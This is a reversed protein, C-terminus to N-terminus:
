EDADGTVGEGEGLLVALPAISHGAAAYAVAHAERGAKRLAEVVLPRWRMVLDVVEATTATAFDQGGRSARWRRTIWELDRGMTEAQWALETRALEDREGEDPTTEVAEGEIVQATVRPPNAKSYAARRRERAADREAVTDATTEEAIVADARMKATEEPVYWGGFRNPFAERLSAAEACNSVVLGTATVFTHTGQVEIDYRGEKEDRTVHEIDTVPVFGMGDRPGPTIPDARWVKTWTSPDYGIHPALRSLLLASDAAGFRLYPNRERRHVKATVGYKSAFWAAATDAFEAGFGCCYIRLYPSASGHGTSQISGDDMIWVALGLDDLRTLMDAPKMGRYPLLAASCGTRMRVTPHNGGAGDTNMGTTVRPDLNALAAAKWRLYGEQRISHSEALGPVSTSTKPGHLHADGLLSGLVVQDQETTLTPSTMAVMDGVKLDGAPAWGAPTWVPHDPTMRQTRNFRGVTRLRVWERTGPNRWWNVIPRYVQRGTELDISLVKIPMRERVIKGIPLLGRETRIRASGPLCKAFIMLPKGGDKASRWNALPVKRGTKVDRGKEKRTEDTTPCYEDWYVVKVTAEVFGARYVPVKCAWPPESYPWVDRWVGDPACYQPVGHGRYEGTEEAKRRLGEIGVHRIYKGSIKYLMAEKAYPDFGRKRCEILFAIVEGLDYTAEIGLPGLIRMQEANLLRQDPTFRLPSGQIHTPIIIAGDDDTTAVAERDRVAVAAAATEDINEDQEPMVYGSM